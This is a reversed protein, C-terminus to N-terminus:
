RACPKPEDEKQAVDIVYLRNRQFQEDVVRADNKEKVKKERDAPVADTAVYAVRRGDPSWRMSIVGGKADTLRRAEGGQVRILWVQPTKDSRKSLFAITEGDPSWQPSDSSQDSQTLPYNTGNRQRVHIQSVFESKDGEIVAGSWSHLRTAM